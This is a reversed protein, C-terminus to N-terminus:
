RELAYRIQLTVTVKEQDMGIPFPPLRAGRLLREVAADLIPAGTSSLLQFDLVQGERSVTFRVTARGEEGRRRAEDPYTKNTQLWASLASQLGPSITQHPQNAAATPSANPVSQAEAPPSVATANSSPRARPV